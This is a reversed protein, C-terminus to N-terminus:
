SLRFTRIQHPSAQNTAPAAEGDTELLPAPQMNNAAFLGGFEVTTEAGYPEFGRVILGQGDEAPKVATVVFRAPDTELFSEGVPVSPNDGGEVVMAPYEYEFAVKHMQAAKYDGTHPYFAYEITHRGRDALPDSVLSKNEGWPAALLTLRLRGDLADYGHRSRNLIALGASGDTLDGWTNAPVEFRAKEWDTERKTPREVAGFPVQYFAKTGALSTEAAVKLVMQDEWWDAGLVCDVKGSDAYVIFDQTFFSTPYDIGPTHWLIISYYPKKKEWLGFDYKARFVVRVPGDEIKEFSTCRPKFEKGTLGMNWTQYDRVKTDELVNLGGIEGAAMEKGDVVLSQIVGKDADFKARLRSNEVWDDGARLATEMRQESKKRYSEFGLGPLDKATFVIKDGDATRQYPVVNGRSDVLTGTESWGDADLEIAADRKWPLPNFVYKYDGSGLLANASKATVKDLTRFAEDYGEYVDQYVAPMSTGTLIDHFQRFMQTHWAEHLQEQSSPTGLGAAVASIAETGLLRRACERESQKMRGQVTYTKHHTELFLEERIVPLADLAEQEQERLIDFYRNFGAYELNPYVTLKKAEEINDMMYPQPGGGHNGYGWMVPIHTIGDTIHHVRVIAPIEDIDIHNSHSPYVHLGLIRSGDDGEWWFHIYPFITYENYRLKQTIFSDIGAQKYIKPLAANFGFADINFGCRSKKGCTEEATQQGHLLQRVWSEADLCMGDPECWMGGQPEFQGREAAARLKEWLEPYDRQLEEWLVASSEVYVYNKEREMLALQNELTGKMCEVTEPWRWKWALDIHSHGIFYVTFTKAFAALPALKSKCQELSAVFPDLQKRCVARMDVANAAALLADTLERRQGDSIKSHNIDVEGHLYLNDRRNETSLLSCSARLSRAMDRILRSYKDLGTLSCRSMVGGIPRVQPAPIRMFMWPKYEQGRSDAVEVNSSLFIYEEVLTDDCYLDPDYGCTFEFRWKGWQAPPVMEALVPIDMQAAIWGKQATMGSDGVTLDYEPCAQMKEISPKPQEESDGWAHWKPMVRYAINELCKSFDMVDELSTCENEAWYTLPKFHANDTRM